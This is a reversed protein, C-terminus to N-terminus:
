DVVFIHQSLEMVNPQHVCLLPRSKSLVGSLV